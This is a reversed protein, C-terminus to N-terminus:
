LGSKSLYGHCDACVARNDLRLLMSTTMSPLIGRNAAPIAGAMRDMKATTGHARHCTLCNITDDASRGLPLQDTLPLNTSPAGLTVNLRSGAGGTLPVDTKHRYRARDGAGDGADYVSIPQEYVTHCGSCWASLGANYNRTYEIPAGVTAPPESLNDWTQGTGFQVDTYAMYSGSKPTTFVASAPDSGNWFWPGNWAVPLASTADGVRLRLSRYQVPSNFGTHMTHCSTCDLKMSAGSASGFPTQTVGIDHQSTGPNTPDTGNVTPEAIGDGDTDISTFSGGLLPTGVEGWPGGHRLSGVPRNYIGSTVDTDAGTGNRHCTLCMGATSYLLNESTATHTRHCVYCIQPDSAFGEHGTPMPAAVAMAAPGLVAAAALSIALFYGTIRWAARM